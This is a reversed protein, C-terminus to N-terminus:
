QMSKRLGALGIGLMLLILIALNERSLTPIGQYLRTNTITCDSEGLAATHGLQVSIEACDSDDTEVGIEVEVESVTCTTEGNWHPIVFFSDTSEQGNFFLLNLGQPAEEDLQGQGFCEYEAEAFMPNMFEPHEDFWLKRVIVEAPQVANTIFCDLESGQEIDEYVCGDPNTQGGEETAYAVSYGQPVTETVECDTNGSDISNTIFTIPNGESVGASVNLPLGTNCEKHVVIEAPNGDNFDKYVTITVRNSGFWRFNGGSDVSNYDEPFGPAMFQGPQPAHNDQVDVHDVNQSGSEALQIFGPNGPVSSRIQLLNGAAGNLVVANLISQVEGASFVVQKGTATVASWDYFTTNGMLTTSATGCGDVMSVTSAGADFSGGNTWNGALVLTGSQGNVAGNIVINRAQNLSGTGLSLAGDIQLDKCGLSMSGGGLDISASPGITIGQALIPGPLWGLMCVAVIPLLNRGVARSTRSDPMRFDGHM